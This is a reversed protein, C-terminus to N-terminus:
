TRRGTITIGTGPTRFIGRFERRNSDWVIDFPTTRVLTGGRYIYAIATGTCDPDVVFSGALTEDFLNGLVSSTQEGSFTGASTITVRGVAAFPGVVPAVISGSTTYGYDGAVNSMTCQDAAQAQQVLGPPASCVILAITSHLLRTKM